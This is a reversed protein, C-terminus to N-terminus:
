FHKLTLIVLVINNLIKIKLAPLSIYSNQPKKIIIISSQILICRWVAMLQFYNKNYFYLVKISEDFILKIHM